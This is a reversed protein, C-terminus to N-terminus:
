LSDRKLTSVRAKHVQERVELREPTQDQYGAKARQQRAFETSDWKVLKKRKELKDYYRPPPCATGELVVADGRAVDSGFRQYWRAGIGPKLSCRCFEPIRSGVVGDPDITRYHAHAMDGTVKDVVYRACYGATQPNLPQISSHGYPWFKELTPSRYFVAGAGSKGAPYSDTFDVNFLCAHYHPRLNLPGYEGCMFFRIRSAASVPSDGSCGSPGASPGLSGQPDSSIGGHGSRAAQRLARVFKQFHRYHLSGGPPLEEDRYTLTVFCTYRYLQAEHTIRVAWDKSRRLRCGLCQGCPLDVEGVIDFRRLASFVVGNPTRFARIPSYCPM